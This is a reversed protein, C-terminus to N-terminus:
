AHSITIQEISNICATTTGIWLTGFKDECITSVQNGEIVLQDPPNPTFHTFIESKPDFKELGFQSGIWLIGDKDEYITSLTNDFLSTTDDVDHLYPTFTYGNYKYLGSWTAFWLYGSKDQYIYQVSPQVGENLPIDEFKLEAQQPFTQITYFIGTQIIFLIKAPLTRLLNSIKLKGSM